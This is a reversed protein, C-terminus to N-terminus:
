ETAMELILHLHARLRTWSLTLAESKLQSPQHCSCINLWFMKDLCADNDDDGACLCKGNGCSHFKGGSPLPVLCVPEWPFPGGSEWSQYQTLNLSVPLTPHWVRDRISHINRESHKEGFQWDGLEDDYSGTAVQQAGEPMNPWWAQRSLCRRWCCPEATMDQPRPSYLLFPWLHLIASKNHRLWSLLDFCFILKIISIAREAVCHMMQCFMVISCILRGKGCLLLMGGVNQFFM